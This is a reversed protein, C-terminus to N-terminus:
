PQVEEDPVIAFPLIRPGSMRKLGYVANRPIIAQGTFSVDEGYAYALCTRATVRATFRFAHGDESRVISTVKCPVLGAFSDIYALMGSKLQISM